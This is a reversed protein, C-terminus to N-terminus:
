PPTSVPHTAWGELTVHEHFTCGCKPCFLSPSVAGDKGIVHDTLAAVVGCVPCCVSASRGDPTQLGKWTGPKRPESDDHPILM